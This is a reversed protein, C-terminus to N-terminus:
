WKRSRLVTTTMRLFAIILASFYALDRSDVVGKSISKYHEEIGMSYIIAKLNQSYALEALYSFGIYFLFCFSLATLFAVIQNETISAAFVGVATYSAALFFLGIFSGWFAGVDISGIPNGLHYVSFYHGLSFLLSVAVILLVAFYKALVIQTDTLPRTFLLEINGQKKEDAFLRMCIAPILFLYLWPSMEFLVDLNAYATDLPNSSGPFVWIFLALAILFVSLILYASLTSFFYRFEKKLLALM